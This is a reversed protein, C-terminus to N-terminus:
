DLAREAVEPPGSLSNCILRQRMDALVQEACAVVDGTRYDDRDHLEIFEWLLEHLKLVYAEKKTYAPEVM